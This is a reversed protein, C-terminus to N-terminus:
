IINFYKIYLMYLGVLLVITGLGFFRLYYMNKSCTEKSMKPLINYSSLVPSDNKAYIIEQCMTHIYAIICLIGFFLISLIIFYTNDKNRSIKYYLICFVGVIKILDSIHDYYDGFKSVMNYKRAFKGDICDYFYSVLWLIAALVYSDKYIAYVSGIGTLLSLTTLMNPTFNLNYYFNLQSDAILNFINDIPSNLEPQLKNVM